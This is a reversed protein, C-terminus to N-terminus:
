KSHKGKSRRPKYDDYGYNRNTETSSSDQYNSSANNNESSYNNTNSTQNNSNFDYSITEQNNNYVNNEVNKNEESTGSSEKTTYPNYDFNDEYKPTEQPVDMQPTQESNQEPMKGFLEEELYKKDTNNDIKENNNTTKTNKSTYGYLDAYDDLNEEEDRKNRRKSVIIIIIILIILFAIAGIGAYLIWDNKETNAPMVAKNIYIRYIATETGDESTVTVEVVNEGQQLNSNGTINVVANEFNATGIVNVSNVSPDLINFKYEFIDPSFKPSLTYGDVRLSALALVETEQKKVDITYIRTTGDQATVTIKVMNDGSQLAENGIIEVTANEDNPTATIDLKEVDPGVTLTYTTTEPNFEPTLGEQVIELTKLAKDASKTPEKTTILSSSIYATKGNYTIKSWGNDGIGTRTVSEDKKLKGLVDSDTSYSKRVNIDDKTAYVTENVTKFTPEKPETTTPKNNNTNNNNTNNNNTNNNNNTAKAKVTIKITKAGSVENESTDAVDEPTVTITATGAKKATLTVSSDTTSDIFRSSESVSVVSSDSSSISFKGACDSATISLKTTNGETLTKNGVSVSFSGAAYTINCNLLIMSWLILFIIIIKSKNKIM